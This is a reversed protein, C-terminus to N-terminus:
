NFIPTNAKEIHTNIELYNVPPVEMMIFVNIIFCSFWESFNDLILLWYM